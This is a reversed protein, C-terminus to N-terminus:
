EPQKKLRGQDQKMFYETPRESHLLSESVTFSCMCLSVLMANM